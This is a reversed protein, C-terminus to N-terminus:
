GRPVRLTAEGRGRRPPAAVYREVGHSVAAVRQQLKFGLKFGLHGGGSPLTAVFEKPEFSM